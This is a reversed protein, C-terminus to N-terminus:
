NMYGTIPWSIDFNLHADQMPKHHVLLRINFISLNADKLTKLMSEILMLKAHTSAQKSLPSETLCVFADQGSPALIVSQVTIHKDIINEEELTALWSNLLLKITQAHDNSFIIETSEKKFTGHTFIWLPTEKPQININNKKMIASPTSFSIIILSEQHLFFLIGCLLLAISMIIIKLNKM